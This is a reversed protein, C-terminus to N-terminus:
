KRQKVMESVRDVLDAPGAISLGMYTEAEVHLQRGDIEIDLTELEQSGAVGWEHRPTGTALERLVDRLVTRLRQDHEPGLVITKGESSAM